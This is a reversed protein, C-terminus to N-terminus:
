TNKEKLRAEVWSILAMENENPEWWEASLKETDTPTLGVWKRPPGHEVALVEIGGDPLRKTISVCPTEGASGWDVGWAVPEEALAVDKTM